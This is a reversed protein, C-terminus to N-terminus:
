CTWKRTFHDSLKTIHARISHVIAADVDPDQLLMRSELVRRSSFKGQLEKVIKKSVKEIKKTSPYFDEAVTLGVMAENILRKTHSIWEQESRKQLAQCRTLIRVTLLTVFLHLQDNTESGETADPSASQDPPDM